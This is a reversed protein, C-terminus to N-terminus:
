FVRCVKATTPSTVVIEFKGVNGAEVVLSDSGNVTLGTGNFLALTLNNGTTAKTNDLLVTIISGYFTNIDDLTYKYGNIVSGEIYDVDSVEGTFSMSNQTLYDGIPQNITITKATDTDNIVIKRSISSLSISTSATLLQYLKKQIFAFVPSTKLTYLGPYFSILPSRNKLYELYDNSPNLVDVLDNYKDAPTFVSKLHSIKNVIKKLNTM